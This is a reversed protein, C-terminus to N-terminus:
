GLMISGEKSKSRILGGTTAEQSVGFGLSFQFADTTTKHSIDSVFASQSYLHVDLTTEHSSSHSYQSTLTTVEIMSDPIDSTNNESPTETATFEIYKFIYICTYILLVNLQM